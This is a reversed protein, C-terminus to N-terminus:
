TPRSRRGADSTRKSRGTIVATATAQRGIKKVPQEIVRRLPAQEEGVVARVRQVQQEVRRAVVGLGHEARRHQQEDDRDGHEREHDEDHALARVRLRRASRPRAADTFKERRVATNGEHRHKPDSDDGM